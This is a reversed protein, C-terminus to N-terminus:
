LERWSQCTLGRGGASSLPAVDLMGHHPTPVRDFVMLGLLAALYMVSALFLRRADAIRCRQYLRVALAVLVGGLLLSGVAYVGGSIGALTAALGLPVLTLSYLVIVQGTVQGSRDLVPLIRFGGRAYDDRYAWALSLFHPVQWFFLIAGLIWAGPGLRGCAATWGMMPPIAGCVAGVLTSLPTRTKLPTYLSLYVLQSTLALAATLLDVLVALVLPGAIATGLAFVLADCRSLRGSPLPRRCSRRMRADRDAEMCQNLGNAGAAALATGILTWGLRAWVILGESALLFGAATTMLILGILRAKALELYAGLQIRAGTDPAGTLPAWGRPEAEALAGRHSHSPALVGAAPAGGKAARVVITANSM